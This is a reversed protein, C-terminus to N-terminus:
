AADLVLQHQKRASPILLGLALAVAGAAACVAFAAAYAGDTPYGTDGILSSSVITAAVQGGVAAGALRITSMIATAEGIQNQPVSFSLLSVAPTLIAALAFGVVATGVGIQWVSDHLLALWAFAAAGVGTGLLTIAKASARAMSAGIAPSSILQVIAMPLLYYTATSASAGFGYGVSKPTQALKPILLLVSYLGFSTAIGVVNITWIARRRFLRLDVLPAPTTREWQVWGALLAVGAAILALVRAAGWGWHVGESVGLLAAGLGAVFLVAGVWDVRAPTKVESEPVVIIACLGTTAIAILGLWFIWEYSLHDVIVGSMLYGAVSGVGYSGSILGFGLSRRASPMEDRAIAFSLAFISGGFGQLARGTVLLGVSHSLASVLCGLCGMSVVFVLAKNRGFMDGLRGTIPTSVAAVLVTVTLVWGVGTTSAHPERQIVPLVPAVATTVMSMVLTLLVLAALTLNHHRRGVAAATSM